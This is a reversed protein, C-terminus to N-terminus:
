KKAQTDTQGRDPVLKPRKSVLSDKKESSIPEVKKPEAGGRTNAPHGDESNAAADKLQPAAVVLGKEKLLQSLQDFMLAEHSIRANVAFENDTSCPLANFKDWAAIQGTSGDEKRERMTFLELYRRPAIGVFPQFVVVSHSPGVGEVTISDPYLESVRSKAYPDIYFVMRVGAAVIHKACEHCPFATCYMIGNEVAIGRKAADSIAAMEAHVCRMFEIISMLHADKMIKESAIEKLLQSIEADARDASLWKHKQLRTLVDGLLNQKFIDNIEKGLQFDRMDPSDGTWYLGGGAKPVENSGVAIIDGDRTTIASGVQRGLSASRMAAGYAQFIGFEERTPTHFQYGFIIEVLRQIAKRAEGETVSTSSHM